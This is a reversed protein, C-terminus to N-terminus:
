SVSRRAAKEQNRESTAAPYRGRKGQNAGGILRDAARALGDAATYRVAPAEEQVLEVLPDIVSKSSVRGLAWAVDARVLPDDEAHILRTLAAVDAAGGAVGIAHAAALRVGVDDAELAALVVDHAVGYDVHELLFAAHRRTFGDADGLAHRLQPLGDKNGYRSLAAAAAITVDIEPDKLLPGLVGVLAEDKAYGLALTAAPRTGSAHAGRIAELLLPVGSRDGLRLLAHAAAVREFMRVDERALLARVEPVARRDGLLGLNEVAQLRLSGDAHRLAEALLDLAEASSAGRLGQLVLLQGFADSQGYIRRLMRLAQGSGIEGLGEIAARRVGPDSSAAGSELVGSGTWDGHGALASAAYCREYPDEDKLGQRLVGLSLERLAALSERSGFPFRRRLDGVATRVSEDAVPARVAHEDGVPPSGGLATAAAGCVFALVFGARAM